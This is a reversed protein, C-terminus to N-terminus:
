GNEQDGQANQAPNSVKITQAIKSIDIPLTSVQMALLSQWIVDLDTEPRLFIKIYIASLMVLFSIAKVFLSLNKASVNM